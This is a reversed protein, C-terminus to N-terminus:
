ADAHEPCFDRTPGTKGANHRVWGAKAWLRRAIERRVDPPAAIAAKCGKIDCRVEQIQVVAM